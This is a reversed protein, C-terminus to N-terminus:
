LVNISGSKRYQALVKRARRRLSEDADQSILSIANVVRPEYVRPSGDALVHLVHSRVKAVPDVAMEIVRDWIRSQNRKVHCPCLERVAVSRDHADNSHSLFLLDDIDSDTVRAM